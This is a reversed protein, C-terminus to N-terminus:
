AEVNKYQTLFYDRAENARVFSALIAESDQNVIAERLFELQQQLQTMRELVAESNALFIDHWMVPDSSAIRTFDKFGGAAFKFIDQSEQQQALADVLAFALVHPLHSTAALVRDHEAVSMENIIAGCAQWLQSVTNLAAPTTEPLPTLIVRHDQYLNPNVAEVGSKESGAIPHGLVLHSLAEICLQDRAAREISGKVSAGDTVIVGRCLAEECAAIVAPVALTPTAVMVVDGAELAALASSLDAEGRDIVGLQL